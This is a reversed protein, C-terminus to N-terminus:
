DALLGLVNILKLRVGSVADDLVENVLTEAAVTFFLDECAQQTTVSYPEMKKKKLFFIGVPHGILANKKYLWM